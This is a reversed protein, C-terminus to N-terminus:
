DLYAALAEVHRAVAGQNKKLANTARAVQAARLATNQHLLTMGEVLATADDVQQIAKAQVLMESLDKSNQMFLGCFVPVGQAMPELVNHGGIPVFSGGVFAYDSVGYFGLLEGLSDLVLVETKLNISQAESRRATNFLSAKSLRYVGDFREPHRPAILLVVGPIQQQLEGLVSLLRAEEGEHTSAAIVVPRESGWAQKLFMQPESVDEAVCIDNKMNGFMQVKNKPLGLACFRKADQESQAFVGELCCWLSKFFWSARQYARFAGDSIRANAIFLAVGESKAAVMLNPWLETELIVGIRPQYAKFFRKCAIPYDYPVYQHAVRTGFSRTVQGSGTPTMTTVLVRQNAQLLHEILGTAAVVEGLSVAHVWVDVPAITHMGWFFREKLRMRYQKNKRGKWFLRLGIFPLCLYFLGTYVFRMMFIIGFFM